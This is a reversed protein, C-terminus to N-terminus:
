WIKSNIDIGRKQLNVVSKAAKIYKEVTLESPQGDERCDCGEMPQLVIRNCMRTKGIQISAELM